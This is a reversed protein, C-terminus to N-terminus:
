PKAASLKKRLMTALVDHLQAAIRVRDRNQHVWGRGCDGIAHREQVSLAAIRQVARALAEGSADDTQVGGGSLRVIGEVEGPVNCVVPRGAAFYDFLKNPSVGFAFLKAPRLLMLGADAQSLFEPIKRKEVPERFVVNTLGMLAARTVLGAKAPGDGVLEFTITPDERLIEAARLVVDLGNAPGHAGTYVFRVPAPPGASEPSIRRRAFAQMDVGNPILVIKAPDVGLEELHQISGTALVLISDARRYLYRAVVAVVGYFIGRRGGVARLSEPWLDRVEFVFPVGLRKAIREGALAAFIQPSSGIVVDASLGRLRTAGWAFSVWNWARRWNNTSYPAAWVWVYEVGDIRSTRVQKDHSGDRGTYRRSYVDFDSALLRVSWGMTQLERSLELHRTGGTGTPTQAHQHVWLLHRTM